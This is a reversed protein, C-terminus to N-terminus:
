SRNMMKKILHNGCCYTALIPPILAGFSILAMAFASADGRPWGVATVVSKMVQWLLWMVYGFLQLLAGCLLLWGGNWCWWGISRGTIMSKTNM